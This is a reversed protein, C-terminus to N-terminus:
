IQSSSVQGVAAAAVGLRHAAVADVTALAAKAKVAINAARHAVGDTAISSAM